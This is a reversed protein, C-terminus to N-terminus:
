DSIGSLFEDNLNNADTNSLHEGEFDATTGDEFILYIAKFVPDGYKHSVYGTIDKIKSGTIKTLSLLYDSGESLFEKKDM